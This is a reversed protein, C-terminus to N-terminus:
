IMEIQHPGSTVLNHPGIDLEFRGTNGVFEVSKVYDVGAVRQLTAFVESRQVKRGFDWGRGSEGGQLPHFFLDLAKVARREIESSERPDTARVEARVTVVTFAPGLVHVDSVISGLCQESLFAQVRSLLSSSPRPTSESGKPLVVMTVAGPRFVLGGPGPAQTSLCKARAIQSFRELVMWEFDEASVARRKNKIFQPGFLFVDDLSWPDAGGTAPEVNFVKAVYPLSSKLEKVALPTAARVAAEGGGVRYDRFVLNDKAVPALMGRRGDGLRLEGSVRDLTYHRSRAGSTLFNPVRRWRVFAGGGSASADVPDTEDHSDADFFNQARKQEIRLAELEAAPPPVPERVWLEGGLVPTKLLSLQQNPDGTGSGIVMEPQFTYRNEALVTNPFIGQLVPPYDYAGSALRVRFWYLSEGAAVPVADFLKALGADSPGVFSVTGSSTLQNTEDKVDLPKWGVDPVLYEWALLPNGQEAPTTVSPFTERLKFYLSIFVDGFARDFGLYLGDGGAFAPAAGTSLEHREPGVFPTLPYTPAVTGAGHDVRNLNNDSVVSPVDKSQSEYSFAFAASEVIPPILSSPTVNVPNTSSPPDAPRTLSVLADRGYPDDSKLLARIWFGEVGNVKGRGMDPKREFTFTALTGGQGFFTGDETATPAGDREIVHQTSADLTHEFKTLDRWAGHLDLYQWQVLTTVSGAIKGLDDNSYTKLEIFISVNEVEPALARDSALYFADGYRPREGFPKFPKTLDVPTGNAFAKDLSVQASAAPTTSLRGQIRSFSPLLQGPRFTGVFHCAVWFDERGAITQKDNNGFSTLRVLFEHSAPPPYTAATDIWQKRDKDFKQWRLSSAGFLSLDGSDVGFVLDVDLTEKRGFLSPGGLYLVHPLDTLGAACPSLITTEPAEAPKPPISALSVFSFRDKGPLLNVCALLKAATAHIAQRTEFVQADVQDTQTTAVKTGAPIPGGEAANASPLFTLPVSAPAGPSREVGVMDLFALFNKEPVGNLRVILMEMLRSFLDLLQFGPDGPDDIGKWTSGLYHQALIRAENRVEAASRSDLQPSPLM